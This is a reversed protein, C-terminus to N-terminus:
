QSPHLEADNVFANLGSPRLLVSPMLSHVTSQFLVGRLRWSAGHRSLLLLKIAEAEDKIMLARMLSKGVLRWPADVHGASPEEGAAYRAKLIGPRELRPSYVVASVYAPM